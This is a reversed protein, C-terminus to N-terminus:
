REGRSAEVKGMAATESLISEALFAACAFTSEAFAWTLEVTAFTFSAALALVLKSLSVEDKEAFIKHM